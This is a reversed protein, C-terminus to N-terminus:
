SKSGFRFLDPLGLSQMAGAAELLGLVVSNLM